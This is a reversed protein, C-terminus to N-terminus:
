RGLPVPRRLARGVLERAVDFTMPPSSPAPVLPPEASPSRSRTRGSSAPARERNKSCRTPSGSSATGRAVSGPTGDFLGLEIEEAESKCIPCQPM